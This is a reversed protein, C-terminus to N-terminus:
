RQDCAWHMSIERRTFAALGALMVIWPPGSVGFYSPSARASSRRSRMDVHRNPALSLLRHDLTRRASISTMPSSCGSRETSGVHRPDVEAAGVALDM